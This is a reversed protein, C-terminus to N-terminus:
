RQKEAGAILRAARMAGLNYKNFYVEPDDSIRVMYMGVNQEPYAERIYIHRALEPSYFAYEVPTPLRGGISPYRAMGIFQINGARYARHFLAYTAVERNTAHNRMYNYEQRIAVSVASYAPRETTTASSKVKKKFMNGIKM